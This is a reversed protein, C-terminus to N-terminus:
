KSPTGAMAELWKGAFQLAKPYIMEAFEGAMSPEPVLANALNSSWDRAWKIAKEILPEPYGKSRWESIIKEAYERYQEPVLYEIQPPDVVSKVAWGAVFAGAGVVLYLWNSRVWNVVSDWVWSM